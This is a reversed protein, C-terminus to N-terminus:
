FSGKLKFNAYAIADQWGEKSGPFRAAPSPAQTETVSFKSERFHPDIKKWKLVMKETVDLFVMIKTGEFSCSACNPYKAKLVLHQGVRELDIIEYNSSDPTTNSATGSSYYDRYSKSSSCNPDGPMHRCVM